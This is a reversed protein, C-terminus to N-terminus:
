FFVNQLLHNLGKIKRVLLCCLTGPKFNEILLSKNAGIQLTNRNKSQTNHAEGPPRPPHTLNKKVRCRHSKKIFIQTPPLFTAQLPPPPNFVFLEGSLHVIAFDLETSALKCIWWKLVNKGWILSIGFYINHETKKCRVCMLQKTGAKNEIVLM